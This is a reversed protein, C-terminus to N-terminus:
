GYVYNYVMIYHMVTGLIVFAHWIVHMYPIRKLKYFVVGVTYFLGGAVLFNFGIPGIANFYPLSAVVITWGSILNLVLSVKAFKGVNIVNLAMGLISCTAVVGFVTWGMYGGLATWCAPVYTGLILLFILSHDCKQAIKRLLAGDRASYKVCTAHYFFSASYLIVLSMGFIIAGGLALAGMSSARMILFVLGVIGLLAAAGHMAAHIIEEKKTFERKIKATKVAFDEARFKFGDFEMIREM